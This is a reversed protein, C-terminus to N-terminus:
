YTFIQSISFKISAKQPMVIEIPTLARMKTPAFRRKSRTTSRQSRNLAIVPAIPQAMKEATKTPLRSTFPGLRRNMITQAKIKKAKAEIGDKILIRLYRTPAPRVIPAPTPSIIVVKRLSKTLGSICNVLRSTSM